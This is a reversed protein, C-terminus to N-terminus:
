KLLQMLKQHSYRVMSQALMKASQSARQTPLRELVLDIADLDVRLLAELAEQFYSPHSRAARLVLDLPNQGRLQAADQFIGGRGKEIYRGVQKNALLQERKSDTLERGLSSAHDFSPAVTLEVGRGLQPRHVRLGWNEHHRDTNGILADLVLFGAMTRLACETDAFGRLKCIAAVINDLSHESQMRVKSKDYGHVTTAMIENGHVVAEGASSDIFNRSICGARGQFAALEVRAATIGLLLAIESAAKEAWDEGATPRSEKFLWRHGDLFVWFKPKSGLQETEDRADVPIEIIPYTPHSLM